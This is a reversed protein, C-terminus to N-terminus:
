MTRAMSWIRDAAEAHGSGFAQAILIMFSPHLITLTQVTQVTQLKVKQVIMPCDGSVHCTHALIHLHQIFIILFQM